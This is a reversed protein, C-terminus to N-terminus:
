DHIVTMELNMIKQHRREGLVNTEPTNPTNFSVELEEDRLHDPAGRLETGGDKHINHIM